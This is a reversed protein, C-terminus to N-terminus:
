TTSSSCWISSMAAARSLVPPLLVAPRQCSLPGRGWLPSLSRRIRRGSSIQRLQTYHQAFDVLDIAQKIAEPDMRTPHETTM